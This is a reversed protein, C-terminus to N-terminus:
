RSMAAKEPSGMRTYSDQISEGGSSEGDDPEINVNSLEVPDMHGQWRKGTWVLAEETYIICLVKLKLSKWDSNVNLVGQEPFLACFVGNYNAKLQISSDSDGKHASGYFM